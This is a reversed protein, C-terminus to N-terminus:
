PKPQNVHVWPALPPMGLMNSAPWSSTLVDMSLGMLVLFQFCTLTGELASNIPKFTIPPGGRSGCELCSFLIRVASARSIWHGM